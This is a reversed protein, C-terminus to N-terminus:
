GGLLAEIATAPTVCRFGTDDDLMEASADNFVAPVARAFPQDLRRGQPRPPRARLPDLVVGLHQRLPRIGRVPLRWQPLPQGPDHLRSQERPLQVQGPHPQEGPYTDGRTGRAAKEWQQATPLEKGAWAAYASVDHWTVFVVPHDLISDPCMGRHWHQPPEYGTAAVFRAYDNNTVPYVDIYFSPLWVPENKEGCLFTGAEVM